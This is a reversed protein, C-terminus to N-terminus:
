TGGAPTNQALHYEPLGKQNGHAKQGMHINQTHISQMIIITIM